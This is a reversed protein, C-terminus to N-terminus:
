FVYPEKQLGGAFRAPSLEAYEFAPAAGTITAALLQGIAPAQMFGHGSFGAAVFLGSVEPLAGVIGLDDPTMERLGAWLSTLEAERACPLRDQLLAIVRAAEEHHITDDFGPPSERDGGGFILGERGESHFYVGSGLDVVLPTPRRLGPFGVARYAQRHHPEIPLDIGALQAVPRTWAGAAIVVVDAALSREGAVVGSVRGATTHIATVASGEEIRVGSRRCASELSALAMGPDAVGDEPGLTGGLVDETVLGPVLEAIEVRDLDQVAAGLSRQLAMAEHQLRRQEPTVALFLYGVPEYGCDGGYRSPWDRFAELSLRGLRVNIASGFQVRVGGTAKATSGEGCRGRELVTVSKIGRRVLEHAVSLGIIGGGVVIVERLGVARM